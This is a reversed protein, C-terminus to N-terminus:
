QRQLPASVTAHRDLLDALLPNPFRRKQSVAYFHENLMPVQCVEVLAGALLEDRVVIPSVLTVGNSALALLRLM